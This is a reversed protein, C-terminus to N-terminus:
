FPREALGCRVIVKYPTAPVIGTRADLSPLRRGRTERARPDDWGGRGM